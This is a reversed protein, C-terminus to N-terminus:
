GPREGNAPRPRERLARRTNKAALLAIFQRVRASSALRKFEQAYRTKVREVPIDLKRALADIVRLEDAVAEEIKRGVAM